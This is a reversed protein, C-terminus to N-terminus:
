GNGAIHVFFLAVVVMGQPVREGTDTQDWEDEQDSIDLQNTQESLFYTPSGPEEKAVQSYGLKKRKM